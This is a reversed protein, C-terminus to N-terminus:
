GDDTGHNRWQTPDREQCETAGTSRTMQVGAPVGCRSIRHRNDAVKRYIPVGILHVGPVWMLAGLPFLAPLVMLLKRFAFFGEYNDGPPCVLYASRDLDERTIGPPPSAIDQTTRWEIRNRWDFLRLWRVTAACM